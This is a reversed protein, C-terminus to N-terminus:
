LEKLQQVLAQVQPFRYSRSHCNYVSHNVKLATLLSAFRALGDLITTTGWREPEEFQVVIGFKILGGLLLLVSLAVMDWHVLRNLWVALLELDNVFIIINDKEVSLAFCGNMEKTVALDCEVTSLDPWLNVLKCLTSVMLKILGCRTENSPAM